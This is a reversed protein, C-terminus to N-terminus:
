RISSLAFQDDISVRRRDHPHRKGIGGVLLLNFQTSHRSVATFNM